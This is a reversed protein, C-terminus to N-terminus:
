GPRARRRHKACRRRSDQPIEPATPSLDGPRWQSPRAGCTLRAPRTVTGPEVTRSGPERRGASRQRRGAPTLTSGIQLLKALLAASELPTRIYADMGAASARAQDELRASATLAVIITSVNRGDSRIARAARCGDLDPMNLDLLILSFSRSQAHAVAERGNKAFTVSAGWQELLAKTLELGVADDQAVLVSWGRLSQEAVARVM